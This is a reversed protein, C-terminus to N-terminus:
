KISYKIGMEFVRGKTYQRSIYEEGKYTYTQKNDPNLLNTAKFSLVWRNSITKTAILNISNTSKQYIDPTGGKTNIILKPGAVNYVLNVDLGKEANNYGLSANIIYPSQGSMPRTDKAGPDTARILELEVSNISVESYVYTFNVGMRINRLFQIFNLKKRIDIEFGYVSAQDMNQWTLEANQASPNDVVEIPNMFRKYFLGFSAIENPSIFYEYKLDINDILTRILEENGIYVRSDEFDESAYPALERFSPRALTRSINLRLNTKDNTFWTLNLAPLIDNNNLYGVALSSDKSASNILTHEFRLGTVVRLKSFLKLDIMAFGATVLQDATYSNKLDDDPNGQIYLGFNSGTTPNYDQFNLGVNGDSLFESVDGNYTNSPFQFKYDVRKENFDRHKYSFAGGFKLKPTNENSGLDISADAKFNYNDETMTRYYRAPVKYISPDISYQYKGENDPYYTNTFFRMDPEDQQSMTLSGIWNVKLNSINEFYHKGRIQGSTFGRQLWLLKREEILLNDIDDSPKPGIMYRAQSKGSQNKFVNLSLKHKLGIKYSLNALVGWLSEKVGQTTRYDEQTNLRSDDAGGLKYKGYIGNDFFDEQYKYSLGFIYGISNKGTKYQNGISFSYSSNMASPMTAPAMIKNFSTTLDTLSQKDSPYVPINAAASQPIDRAGNDYGFLDTNSGDYSIFNSNFSAQSNIGAKVSFSLTFTEPFDLTVIDILGGTFDAPLNPTYSKYVIMNDILNTPFIDMQVTNRNPDLGPIDASNLTTKSYRDSLGRVFVYKGGEVNIGSVRKLAGAADSDGARKIQESSLGEVVNASKRQLTLMATESRTVAKASIVVEELGMSVSNLVFDQITVEDTKIEIDKIITPDYSIFQCTFEYIGPEIFNINYNGDLDSAAGTSTGFIMVTAGILEEGTEGDIIKGRLTGTQATLFLSIFTLLVTFLYKRYM